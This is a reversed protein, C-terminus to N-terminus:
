MFVVSFSLISDLYVLQHPKALPNVDYILSYPYIKLHYVVLVTVSLYISLIMRARNCLPPSLRGVQHLHSPLAILDIKSCDLQSYPLYYCYISSNTILKKVRGIDM